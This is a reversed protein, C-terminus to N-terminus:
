DDSDGSDASVIVVDKLADAVFDPTISALTGSEILPDAAELVIGFVQMVTRPRLEADKAIRKVTTRVAEATFPFYESPVRVSPDRFHKLVDHVFTVAEDKGFPPLVYVKTAGIRDKLERSFWTPLTTEPLGSFSFIITLGSACANFVSHMGANVDEAGRKTRRIRQYEDIMWVVRGGARGASRAAADLLGVAAAIVSIADDSDRIRDTIGIRRLDAAAVPEGMYWARAVTADAHSGVAIMRLSTRLNPVAATIENAIKEGDGQTSLDLFAEVCMDATVARAWTEYVDRFSVVNKPLESYVPITKVPGSQQRHLSSSLYFLSHTKGAGFWSWFVHLSSTTRRSLTLALTDLETTLAPRGALYTAHQPRPVVSFPWESLGLHQYISM